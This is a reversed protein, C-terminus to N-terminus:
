SSRHLSAVYVGLSTGRGNVIVDTGPTLSRRFESSARCVSNFPRPLGKLDVPSPCWRFSTRDASLVAYRLEVPYGAFLAILMPATLVVVNKGSIYGLLPVVVCAGLKSVVATSGQYEARSILLLSLAACVAGTVIGVTNSQFAWDTSPLYVVGFLHILVPLLGPLLLLTLLAAGRKGFPRLGGAM